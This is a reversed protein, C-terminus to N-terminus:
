YEQSENSAIWRELIETQYCSQAAMYSQLHAEQTLVEDSRVIDVQEIAQLDRNASELTVVLDDLLERDYTHIKITLFYESM